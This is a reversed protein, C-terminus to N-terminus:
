WASYNTGDLGVGEAGSFVDAVGSRDFLDMETPQVHVVRWTATSETVPDIPVSRIYSGEVLAKLDGPYESKDAFYMQIATRMVFLDEKLVAEQAKRISRGYQGSAVTVLIGIIAIVVLLEIM